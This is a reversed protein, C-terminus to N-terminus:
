RAAARPRPPGTTTRPATLIATVQSGPDPPRRRCWGLCGPRLHRHQPGGCLGGGLRGAELHAVAVPAAPDEGVASRARRPPGTARHVAVVPGRDGPHRRDRPHGAAPQARANAPTTLVHGPLACLYIGYSREGSGACRSGGAGDRLQIRPPRDGRHVHRHPHRRSWGARTSSRARVPRHALVHGPHRAALPRGGRQAPAQRRGVGPRLVPQPAPGPGRGGRHAPRLGPHRHGRLDPHHRRRPLLSFLIAMEIASAAALGLTVLLMARQLPPLPLGVPDPPALGSLVAGRHGAVVSARATLAPRVQRLVLRAPLHVVLQQLLLDGSDPRHAAGDAPGPRVPHGLGTVFFMVLLAPLLRRARRLWFM